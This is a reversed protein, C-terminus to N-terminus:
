KMKNNEFVQVCARVTDDAQQFPRQGNKDIFRNAPFEKVTKYGHITKNIQTNLPCANISVIARFNKDKLVKLLHNEMMLIIRVNDEPNLATSTGMMFPTLVHDQSFQM